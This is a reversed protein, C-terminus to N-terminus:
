PEWPALFRVQLSGHRRIKRHLLHRNNTRRFRIVCSAMPFGTDVAQLDWSPDFSATLGGTTHSWVGTRFAVHPVRTMTGHPM